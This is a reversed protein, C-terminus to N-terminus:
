RKQLVTKAAHTDFLDSYTLTAHAHEKMLSEARASQGNILAHYVAHHQMHAYQLRRYERELQQPNFALANVSAFPMHESLALAAKIASNGSAAIILEHFRMNMNHYTEIDEEVVAGNVFLADGAELCAYLEERTLQNLGTEAAQRAALGELVGRVEISDCIQASSVNRVQYGRRPLKELLGEQALARFAIRVPTRSIGLREATPIEALREGASFEGSIIKDRLIRIVSQGDRVM